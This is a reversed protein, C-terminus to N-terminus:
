PRVPLDYRRRSASIKTRRVDMGYVHLSIALADGSNRVRHIDGPPLLGTAEGVEARAEGTCVLADGSDTLAFREEHEYGEHIGVVCWTLHDHIPTVQGPLWVLSVLSFAGDDPVHLLHAKYSTPDSRRQETALLDDRGLHPQLAASVNAVTAKDSASMRVAHDLDAVLEDFTSRTTVAPM